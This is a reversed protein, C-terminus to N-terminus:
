FFGKLIRRAIVKFSWAIELFVFRLFMMPYRFLQPPASRPCRYLDAAFIAVEHNLRLKEGLRDGGSYFHDVDIIRQALVASMVSYHRLRTKRLSDFFGGGLPSSTIGAGRRYKVLVADLFLFRDVLMARFGLVLDEYASRESIPGFDELLKKSWAATAGLYLSNAVSANQLSIPTMLRRDPLVVGTEVGFIDMELAKTHILYPKNNKIFFDALVEVRHPMSIDDGAAAVILEGDSLEFVRNVHAILGLNETNRNVIIKHPGTYNSVEDQIISFTNDTSCDDSIIIQLPSYTQSLASRVAERAFKEQNYTFVVFSVLVSVGLSNSNM